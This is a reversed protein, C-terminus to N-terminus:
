TSIKNFGFKVSAKLIISAAKELQEKSHESTVFLRIRGKNKRVAPFVMLPAALGHQQLFADLQYTISDCGFLVPIIWSNGDSLNVKDKLLSRLYFANKQIQDRKRIGDDGTALELAALMGGTVAPDLACSFMRNRAFFDVYNSIEQKAFLFGGIGALTKSMTGVIMDVEELVGQEESMGRGNEGAILFSHAEDVLTKAGYKKALKVIQRLNGYDGNVSFCGETCILIRRKGDDVDQLVAELDEMNNHRFFHVEGQSLLMGDIISAHSTNDAIICDEKHIYATITGVLASFGSNFLTIAYGEMGFFQLLAEEFTKHIQLSGCAAPSAACGLGYLDLAEKASKIVQPDTAYGFYNYTSFNLLQCKEGTQRQIEIISEPGQLRVSELTLMGADIFKKKLANFRYIEDESRGSSRSFDDLTLENIGNDTVAKEQKRSKQL